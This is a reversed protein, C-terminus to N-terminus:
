PACVKAAHTRGQALALMASGSGPMSPMPARGVETREELWADFCDTRVFVRGGIRTLAPGEGRALMVNLTSLGVRAKAATEKLTLLELSM